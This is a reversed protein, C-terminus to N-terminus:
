QKSPVSDPHITVQFTRVHTITCAFLRHEHFLSYHIHDHALLPCLVVFPTFLYQNYPVQNKTALEIHPDYVGLCLLIIITSLYGVM